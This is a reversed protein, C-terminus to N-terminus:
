GNDPDPHAKKRGLQKKLNAQKELLIEYNWSRGFDGTLEKVEIFWTPKGASISEKVVSITALGGCIDDWGHDISVQTPVYIKDGVNPKPGRPDNEQTAKEARLLLWSSRPDPDPRWKLMVGHKRIVRNVVHLISTLGSEFITEEDPQKESRIDQIKNM